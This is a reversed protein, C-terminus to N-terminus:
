GASRRRLFETSAQVRTRVQLKDFVHSVHVGVTRESIFLRRGIERNTLGEAVAALVEYERATLSSLGDPSPTAALGADDDSLAVRTRAALAAIEAALPQAGLALAAEYAQRLATAGAAARPSRALQAEAQRLRSYAAPYPHHRRDWTHAARAWVAPDRREDLRSLEAACLQLYGTIVERVPRVATQNGKAVREVVSKLRRVAEPDVAVVHGASAEAEARLGHWALVALLFLDDSRTETLGRQVAQRAEDHRGRWMALGAQLTRMPLVHRAGGGALITAVAQLDREAAQEDGYGVSLRCRALLLEVADAGSPRNRLAAAVVKEAEAWQGARFLGNAAVALLRTQYTRAAALTGMRDAGRRAVVVGEDLKNLPGTLLEALHLYACGLDDADGTREAIEVAERVVALGADSDQLYASSFGVAASARVLAATSGALQLAERGRRGADAYRGLHLLLESLNAAATARQAPTCDPHALALEYETEATASRGAAALYTARTLHHECTGAPLRDLLALARAHEGCRHAAAAAYRIVGAQDLDSPTATGGDALALAVSWHRHAEADAHLREAERAAAAAAALAREPEHARQWHHALRAHDVGSPAASVAEAYRRHLAAREVPLLEHELIEAVLRHRLRYGDDASSLFRHTVAARVADILADPDMPVVRALLAHEVPEVGAAVAHVVAHADEPLADVRALFIERLTDSVGARGDRLDRALEEVVFPNGGSRRWVRDAEVAAVPKGVVATVLDDTGTRDLPPLDLVTVSRLRRLETLVRRLPHTGQLAEARVAALISLRVEGLGALLYLLLERTSRDMWQLDDLIFVLPRDDAVRHLGGSIRELLTGGDGDRHVLEALARAAAGGPEAGLRRLAQLLPHLPSADGIDLCTGDLVAAGHARLRAGIERLLRTKGVGSEGTLFVAATRERAGDLLTSALDQLLGSRGILPAEEVDIAM